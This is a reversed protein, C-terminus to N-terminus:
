AAKRASYDLARQYYDRMAEVFDRGGLKSFTNGKSPDCYKWLGDEWMYIYEACCDDAEDLLDSYTSVIKASEDKHVADEITDELSYKLSSIYGVNVVDLADELTNYAELLKHGVGALYGDYHCYAYAIGTEGAVAILSRTGM